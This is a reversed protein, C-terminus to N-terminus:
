KSIYKKIIRKKASELEKDALYSSYNWIKDGSFVKLYQDCYLRPNIFIVGKIEKWGEKMEYNYGLLHGSSGLWQHALINRWDHIKSAIKSFKLDESQGDVFNELFYKYGDQGTRNFLSESITLIAAHIGLFLLSTQYNDPTNKIENNFYNSISNLLTSISEEPPGDQFRKLRKSYSEGHSKNEAM